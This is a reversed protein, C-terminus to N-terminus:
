PNLFDWGLLRMYLPPKLQAQEIRQGVLRWCALLHPVLHQGFLAAFLPEGNIVGPAYCLRSDLVDAEPIDILQRGVDTLVREQGNAESVIYVVAKRASSTLPHTPDTVIIPRNVTVAAAPLWPTGLTALAFLMILLLAVPTATKALSPLKNSHTIYTYFQAVRKSRKLFYYPLCALGAFVAADVLYPWPTLLIAFISLAFTLPVWERLRSNHNHLGAFFLYCSVVATLALFIPIYLTITGIIVSAPQTAVLATAITLNFGAVAYSKLILYAFLLITAVFTVSFTGGRRREGGEIMDNGAGM